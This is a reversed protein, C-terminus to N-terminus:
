RSLPMLWPGPQKWPWDTSHGHFVETQPWGQLVQRKCLSHHPRLHSPMGKGSLPNDPDEHAPAPGEKDSDIPGPGDRQDHQMGGVSLALPRVHVRAAVMREMASARRRRWPVIPMSQRSNSGNTVNHSPIREVDSCCPIRISASHLRSGLLLTRSAIIIHGIDIKESDCGDSNQDREGCLLKDDDYGDSAALSPCCWFRHPAPMRSRRHSKFQSVIRGWVKVVDSAILSQCELKGM